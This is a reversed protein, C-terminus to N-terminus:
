NQKAEESTKASKLTLHRMAPQFDWAYRFNEDVAFGDFNQSWQPLDDLDVDNFFVLTALSNGWDAELCRLTYAKGDSYTASTEIATGEKCDAPWFAALGLKITGDDNKELSAVVEHDDYVRRMTYGHEESIRWQVDTSRRKGLGIDRQWQWDTRKTRLTLAENAQADSYLAYSWFVAVALVTLAVATIILWKILKVLSKM